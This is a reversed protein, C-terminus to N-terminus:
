LYGWIEDLKKKQYICIMIIEANMSVNNLLFHHNHKKAGTLNFDTNFM